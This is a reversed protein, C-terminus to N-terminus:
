IHKQYKEWSNIGRAGNWSLSSLLRCQTFSVLTWPQDELSIQRAGDEKIQHGEHGVPDDREENDQVFIIPVTPQIKTKTLCGATTAHLNVFVHQVPNQESMTSWFSYVGLIFLGAMSIVHYSMMNMIKANMQTGQSRNQFELSSDKLFLFM